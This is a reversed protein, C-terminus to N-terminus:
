HGAIEMFLADTAIKRNINVMFGERVSEISELWRAPQSPAAALSLNDLDARIDANVLLETEPDLTILWIDRVLTELTNLGEEYDTKNRPDNLREAASLLSALDHGIVADHLISLMETRVTKVKEVDMTAARGISGGALRSVLGADQEHAKGTRVLHESIEVTPIPSFRIVQCRSRITQLLRDPRSTILFIYSSPPPEELTKLLANAAEDNLKDANEIIFVRASAQYPRFNAERELDRIADVLINRNYPIVIGVDPHRSFIVKRHAERDDSKPFEFELRRRCSECEGCAAGDAANRCVIAEALALAFQKKGVGDPGTFLASNPM